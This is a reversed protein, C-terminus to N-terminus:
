EALIGVVHKDEIIFTKKGNHKYIWHEQVAWPQKVTTVSLPKGMLFVLTEQMIGIAFTGKEICKTDIDPLEPHTQRYTDISEQSPKIFFHKSSCQALGICMGACCLAVIAYRRLAEIVGRIGAYRMNSM